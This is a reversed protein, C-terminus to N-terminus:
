PTTAAGEAPAPILTALVNAIGIMLPDGAPLEKVVVVFATHYDEMVGLVLRNNREGIESTGTKGHTIRTDLKNKGSRYYGETAESWLGATTQAAQADVLEQMDGRKATYVDLDRNPDFISEVLYPEASSGGNVIAGALSALEVMNATTDVEGIMSWVDDHRDNYNFVTSTVERTIRDIKEKPLKEGEERNYIGMDLLIKQTEDVDLQGILAAFMCNCSKGIADRMTLPGGHVYGCTVKSGDALEHEGTCTYTFDALEPNQALACATTVIKFCSGPMFTGLNENKSQGGRGKDPSLSPLSLMVYVEGTKYNFAFVTGEYTGFAKRLKELGEGPILTTKMQSGDAAVEGPDTGMLVSVRKPVMQSGFHHVLTFESVVGGNALTGDVLNYFENYACGDVGYIKNGERDTAYGYTGTIEEIVLPSAEQVCFHLRIYVAPISVILALVMLYVLYKKSSESRM